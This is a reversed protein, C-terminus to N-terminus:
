KKAAQLYAYLMNKSKFVKASTLTTEIHEGWTVVMEEEFDDFDKLTLTLNEMKVGGQNMM